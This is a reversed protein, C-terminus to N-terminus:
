KIKLFRIDPDGGLCGVNTVCAHRNTSKTALSDFRLLTKLHDFSAVSQIGVFAMVGQLGVLSYPLSSCVGASIRVCVPLTEGLRPKSFYTGTDELERSM